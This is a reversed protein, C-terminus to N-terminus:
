YTSAFSVLITSYVSMIDMTDLTSFWSVLNDIALLRKDTLLSFTWELTLYIKDTFHFYIFLFFFLPLKCNGVRCVVILRIIRNSIM